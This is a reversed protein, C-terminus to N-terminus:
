SRVEPYGDVAAGARKTFTLEAWLPLFVVMDYLRVLVSGSLQFLGGATRLVLGAIRLM